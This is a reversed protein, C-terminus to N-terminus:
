SRAGQEQRSRGRFIVLWSLLVGLEYLLWMPVALVIQDVPSPGTVIAAFILVGVIVHRRYSNLHRMSVLGVWSLVMVVLPLQFALGFVFMSWAIFGVYDNLMVVHRLGLWRNFNVMFGLLPVSAVFLFFGAGGLFLVASFPVSYSVLRKEREYLGAAVFMWLQYIVWPSAILLGAITALTMYMTIGGTVNSVALQPDLGSQRMVRDYSWLMLGILRNGLAMSAGVGVVLGLLAYILRRRLEELHEGLTMRTPDHKDPEQTM